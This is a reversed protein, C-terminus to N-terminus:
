KQLRKGAQEGAVGQTAQDFRAQWSEATVGVPANASRFWEAVGFYAAVRDDQQALQEPGYTGIDPPLSCYRILLASGATVAAGNPKPRVVLKNGYLAYQTPLGAPENRWDPDGEKGRWELIDGKRLPLTAHRVWDMAVFDVPLSYEQTGEALALTTSDDSYHYHVRRNLEELGSQLYQDVTASPVVDTDQENTWERWLSRMADRRTTLAPTLVYAYLGRSLISLSTPQYPM